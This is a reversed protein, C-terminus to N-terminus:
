HCIHHLLRNGLHGGEAVELHSDPIAGWCDLGSNQVLYATQPNMYSVYHSEHYYLCSSSAHDEHFTVVVACDSAVQHDFGVVDSTRNDPHASWDAIGLDLHFM